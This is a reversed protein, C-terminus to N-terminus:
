YLTPPIAYAGQIFSSSLGALEFFFRLLSHIQPEQAGIRGIGEPGRLLSVAVSGSSLNQGDMSFDYSLMPFRHFDNSFIM